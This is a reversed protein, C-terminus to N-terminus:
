AKQHKTNQTQTYIVALFIIELIDVTRGNLSYESM